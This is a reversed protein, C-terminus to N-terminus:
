HEVADQLVGEVRVHSRHVVSLSRKASAVMAGFASITDCALQPDNVTRGTSNEFNEWNITSSKQWKPAEITKTPCPYSPPLRRQQGISTKGGHGEADRMGSRNRPDFGEHRHFQPDTSAWVDGNSGIRM